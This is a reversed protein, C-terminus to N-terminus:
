REEASVNRYVDDLLQEATSVGDAAGDPRAFLSVPEHVLELAFAIEGIHTSSRCALTVRQLEYSSKGTREARGLNLGDDLVQLLLASEVFGYFTDVGDQVRGRGEVELGLVRVLVEDVGGHVPRQGDQVADLLVAAVAHLADDDRRRVGCHEVRADLGDM